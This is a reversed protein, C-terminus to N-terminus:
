SAASKAKCGDQTCEPCPGKRRVAGHSVWVADLDVGNDIAEKM